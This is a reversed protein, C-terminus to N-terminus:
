ACPYGKDPDPVPVSYPYTRRVADCMRKVPRDRTLGHIDTCNSMMADFHKSWRRFGLSEPRWLAILQRPCRVVGAPWRRRVTNNM